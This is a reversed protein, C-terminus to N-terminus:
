WGYFLDRAAASALAKKLLTKSAFDLPKSLALVMNQAILFIGGDLPITTAESCYKLALRPQACRIVYNEV